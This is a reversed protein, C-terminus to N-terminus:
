TLIGAYVTAVEPATDSNAAQANLRERILDLGALHRSQAEEPAFPALYAAAQEFHIMAAPADGSALAIAARAERVAAVARAAPLLDIEPEPKPEPEPAPADNREAAATRPKSFGPLRDFDFEPESEAANPPYQFPFEPEADRADAGHREAAKMSRYEDARRKLFDYLASADQDPNEVAFLGAVRELMDNNNDPAADDTLPGTIAPPPALAAAVPARCAALDEDALSLARAIAAVTKQHPRRVRGTELESIRSMRAADGFAAAALAQQTLGQEGRKVRTLAGFRAGFHSM